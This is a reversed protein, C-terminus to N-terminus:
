VNVTARHSIIFADIAAQDPKTFQVGARYGAPRGLAPAELKAWVIKGSCNLPKPSTPLVVKVTQNPKLANQSLVQCGGVSLDSLQSPTGNIQVSVPESFSYRPSMRVAVWNPDDNLKAVPKLPKHSPKAAPAPLVNLPTSAAATKVPEAAPKGSHHAGSPQAGKVRAELDERDRVARKLRTESEQLLREFDAREGLATEVRGRAKELEDRLSQVESRALALAERVSQIDQNGAQGREQAHQINQRLEANATHESSLRAELDSERRRLEASRHQEKELKSTLSAIQDESQEALARREKAWRAEIENKASRLETVVRREAELDATLAAVQKAAAAARVAEGDSANANQKGRSTADALQARLQHEADLASQM